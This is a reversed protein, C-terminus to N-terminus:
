ATLFYTPKPNYAESRTLSEGNELVIEAQRGNLTTIEQQALLKVDARGELAKLLQASQGSTVAHRQPLPSSTTSDRTQDVQMVLPLMSGPVSFFKADLTLQVPPSQTFGRVCGILSVIVLSTIFRM